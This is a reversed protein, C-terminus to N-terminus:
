VPQKQSGNFETLMRKCYKGSLQLVAHFIGHHFHRRASMRSSGLSHSGDPHNKFHRLVGCLLTRDDSLRLFVSECLVTLLRSTLEIRASESQLARHLYTMTVHLSVERYISAAAFRQNNTFIAVYGYHTHGTLFIKRM